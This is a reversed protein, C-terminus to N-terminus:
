PEAWYPPEAWELGRGIPLTQRSVGGLRFAGESLVGGLLSSGGVGSQGIPLGGRELSWRVPLARGSWVGGLLFTRDVGPEAGVSPGAWERGQGCCGRGGPPGARSGAAPRVREQTGFKGDAVLHVEYTFNMTRALKILLDICFGYCCQPM